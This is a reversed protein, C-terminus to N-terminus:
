GHDADRAMPEDPRLCWDVLLFLGLGIAFVVVGAAQHSLGTAYSPDLKYALVGTGTVRIANALMAVPVSVFVLAFRLWVPRPVFAVWAVSLSFLAYLSHAGSCQEEVLLKLGPLQLVNGQRVVVWGFADFSGEAIVTAVTQLPQTLADDWATPLPITLVLYALPFALTRLLTRGFAAWVIGTLVILAAVHQAVNIHLLRSYVFLLVGLVLVALGVRSATAPQRRLVHWRDYIWLVSVVPLLLCHSYRPDDAYQTVRLWIIPQFLAVYAVVVCVAAVLFARHQTVHGLDSADAHPDSLKPGRVAISNRVAPEFPTGM